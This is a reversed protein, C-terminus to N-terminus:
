QSFWKWCIHFSYKEFSAKRASKLITKMDHGRGQNGSYLVVFKDQLDLDKIYKNKDKPIKYLKTPDEWTSLITLKNSISPLKQKLRDSM